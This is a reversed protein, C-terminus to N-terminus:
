DEEEQQNKLEQIRRKLDRKELTEKANKRSGSAGGIIGGITAVGATGLAIPKVAKNRITNITDHVHGRVEKEVSEKLKKALKHGFKGKNEDKGREYIKDIIKGIASRGKGKGSLKSEAATKEDPTITGVIAEKAKQVAYDGAKKDAHDLAKKGGYLLGASVGAGTLGGVVGGTVTAGTKIRDDDKGQKDLTIARTKGAYRGIAAPVAGLPNGLLIARSYGSHNSNGKYSTDDENSKSYNREQEGNNRNRTALKYAGYGIGATTLAAAGTKYPHEKIWNLVGKKAKESGEKKVTETATNANGTSKGTNKETSTNTSKGSSNATDTSKETSVNAPKSSSNATETSKETIPNTPKGSSNENKIKEALEAANLDNVHQQDISLKEMDAMEAANLDNVHQQGEAQKSMQQSIQKSVQKNKKKQGKSAFMKEIAYDIGDEFAESYLQQYINYDYDINGEGLSFVKRRIYM